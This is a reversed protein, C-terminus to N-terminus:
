RGADAFRGPSRNQQESAFAGPSRVKIHNGVPHGERDIAPDVGFLVQLRLLGPEQLREFREGSLPDVEFPLDEM